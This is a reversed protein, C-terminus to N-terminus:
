NVPILAVARIRIPNWSKENLPRLELTYAGPQTVELAGLEVSQFTDKGGTASLVVEAKEGDKLQYTLITDEEAAIETQLRFLGPKSIRFDWGVWGRDTNWNSIDEVGDVSKIRLRSRFSTHLDAVSPALILSGDSKQRSVIAKEFDLDGEVEIKVVSANSDTPQDPLDIIIGKGETEPFREFSLPEKNALLQISEPESGFGPVSLKGNESWDFVHLYLTASGDRLKATCRGWAFRGFPSATTGYISEGNIDMWAGIEELREISEQPITGDPKPGINLLFNGGKSAIDCLKQIMDKSSKWNKDYSKYGWTDNMTMCVEWDRDGFGTAPIHQEPTETDGKYKGGLRNNQIIGPVIKILPLLKEAREDNMWRPTDWWLIDPEYRTLIEKIQPVAISELYADYDGYHAKDWGTGEEFRSKAGGPHIWDQSQSYYLGFKLGEARTAEALPAILDKGYPSADAIDWDTVASPFLAFGDHHKSTIVIYRMGARKALQAWYKPDYNTPNFEKAYATYEDVPIEARLMIWEGIGPIEEDNYVGAPVAYVGWHIFMGFRSDRWWAMRADREEKTENAYPDFSVIEIEPAVETVTSDQAKAEPTMQYAVLGALTFLAFFPRFTIFRM